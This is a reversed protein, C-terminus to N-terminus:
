TRAFGVEVRRWSESRSSSRLTSNSRCYDRSEDVEQQGDGAHDEVAGAFRTERLAGAAPHKHDANAVYLVGDGPVFLVNHLNIADSRAPVDVVPRRPTSRAIREERQRLRTLRDGASLVVANSGRGLREHTQGAQVFEIAEPTATV